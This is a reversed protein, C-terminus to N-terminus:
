KEGERAADAPCAALVAAAVADCVRNWSAKVWPEVQEWRVGASPYFAGWAVKGRNPDVAPRDPCICNRKGCYHCVGGSGAEAPRTESAPKSTRWKDIVALAANIRAVNACRCTDDEACSRRAHACEGFVDVETVRERCDRCRVLARMIVESPPPIPVSNRRLRRSVIRVTVAYAQALKLRQKVPDNWRNKSETMVAGVEGNTGVVVVPVNRSVPGALSYIIGEHPPWYLIVGDASELRM